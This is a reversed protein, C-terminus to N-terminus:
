EDGNDEAAPKTRNWAAALTALTAARDTGSPTPDAPTFSQRAGDFILPMDRLEGYRDKLHWLTVANEDHTRDPALLWAADAGFELESSERFSALSLDDAAYTNRGRRDKSRGVASIVVVAVGADAFQRLYNMTADVSSRRNDHKGPPAIRQIYDLVILDARFDDAVAAVNGLDFPPRVFCLRDAVSELTAMARDIRDAHERGLRRYRITTLDIGSLRALQRDLLVGAQMEVNCVLARFTPTLRLADVAGQMVFGTKGAGPPGGILLVLGPGVEIRVLEGTGFPYLTPTKGTLVDDRWSDLADSAITYRAKPKASPKM